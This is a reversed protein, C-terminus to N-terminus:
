GMAPCLDKVFPCRRCRPGEKLPFRLSAQAEQFERVTEGPSDLLSPGLDVAVATNPRLFHLWAHSPPRGSAREVALAYLRLQLAYDQAREHAQARTVDDTKYDVLTVEGGEEFWLDVKGRIVLDNMAMLFDFEREVRRATAARRGLPSQRFVEALRVAEPDADAVPEGALLAHAQSGLDAASIGGSSAGQKQPKLGLYGGLYYARPCNAFAVLDTVTANGNQQGSVGPADLYEVDEGREALPRAILEPAHDTAFLRLRWERGDPTARTVVEDGLQAPDFQLAETVTGAWNGLKRGSSSFSLILREEARTMAVYLLRHSEELDRREREERLARQYLDDIDERRAPNRWRVGLGIKRSFAVVPPKSEVGKHLAAVFVVPFELGKASHVTMIKVADVADDPPADPESPDEERRLAIQDVFEDLSMRASADRALALFKDINAAGRAGSEPRYGCDDMAALLLRDFGAYERRMRWQKLGDRFKVLRAGDEADFAAPDLRELASGMNEPGTKLQLLADASVGVLPSRLAAALAIEDRPNAIARLLNAMDAVERSDYFGRGRNVVCPIGAEAFAAAFEPIVVTNRVLVAVGKLEVGLELIRRAVWQAEMRLGSAADEAGVAICEVCVPAPDAFRREPTLARPEIGPLGAAITEVAMLIEARSRFNGALEVLRRGSQEVADRFERFVGPEAHRFGFISQNIDGVAFFRDPPRLLDLLRAQEGNTDQFEDMLIHEFQSQVRQRLAPDRELLRVACEELDAFDLAGAQRKRERYLHDFSRLLDLLLERQPAHFATVLACRANEIQERLREVLEYATTNRKCKKLNAEFGDVAQLAALPSGATVIREASELISDLHGRQAQSWGAAPDAALEDLTLAVERLSPGAPQPRTALWEVDVGAGRMADYASLAAQEFDPSRLGRILARVGAPHDRFLGELATALAERRMAWAEREDAVTFEPDIGAFVANERLLRACFGHVTSVWARELRARMEPQGAFAEALKKRMNAAAKETFTISLIAAPDVGAGVLRRFYEVLVTTKGSGPGAVVCADLHRRSVDVAALQDPTFDMAM